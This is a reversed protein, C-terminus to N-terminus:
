TYRARDCVRKVLTELMVIWSHSVASSLVEL